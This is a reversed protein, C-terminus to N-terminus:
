RDQCQLAGERRAGSNWHRRRENPHGNSGVAYLGPQASVRKEGGHGAEALAQLKPVGNTRSGCRSGPQAEIEPPGWHRAPPLEPAHSWALGPKTLGRGRVEPWPFPRATESLSRSCLRQELAHAGKARALNDQRHELVVVKTAFVLVKKAHIGPSRENRKPWLLLIFKSTLTGTWRGNGVLGTFLNSGRPIKYV